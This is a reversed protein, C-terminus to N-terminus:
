QQACGDGVAPNSDDDDEASGHAGPALLYKQYDKPMTSIKVLMEQLSMRLADREEALRETTNRSRQLEHDLEERQFRLCVASLVDELSVKVEAFTNMDELVKADAARAEDFRYEMESMKM